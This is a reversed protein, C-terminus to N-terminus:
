NLQLIEKLFPILHETNKAHDDASPHRNNERSGSGHQGYIMQLSYVGAAEGGSAEVIEGIERVLHTKSFMGYTWVIKVDAGYTERLQAIFAKGREVFLEADKAPDNACLCIIVADPSRRPVYPAEDRYGNLRPFLEGMVLSGAPKVIGISGRATVNYDASLAMATRYPTATTASIESSYTPSSAQDGLAGVGTWISDGIFELFLAQDKQEALLVTGELAAGTITCSGGGIDPQSDKLVRLLHTGPEIDRAAKVRVSARDVVARSKQEVGDVYVKFFAGYTSEVLLDLDTGETELLMEFGSCAWETVLGKETVNTREGLLRVFPALESFAFEKMDYTGRKVVTGKSSPAPAGETEASTEEPAGTEVPLAAGSCASLLLCVSLLGSLIVTMRSM